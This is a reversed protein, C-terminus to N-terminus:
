YVEGDTLSFNSKFPVSYYLISSNSLVAHLM